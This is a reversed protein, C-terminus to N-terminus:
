TITPVIKDAALIPIIKKVMIKRKKLGANRGVALKPIKKKINDNSKCASLNSPLLVERM